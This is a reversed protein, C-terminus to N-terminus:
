FLNYIMEVWDVFFLQYEELTDEFEGIVKLLLGLGKLWNYIYKYLVDYFLENQFMLCESPSFTEDLFIHLLEQLKPM